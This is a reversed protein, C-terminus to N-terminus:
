DSRIELGLWNAPPFWRRLRQLPCYGEESGRAIVVEDPLRDYKVGKALAEIPKQYLHAKQYLHRNRSALLLGRRWALPRHRPRVFAIIHRGLSPRSRPALATSVLSMRKPM